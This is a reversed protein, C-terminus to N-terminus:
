FLRKVNYAPETITRCREIINIYKNYKGAPSHAEANQKLLKEKYDTLVKNAEDIKKNTSLYLAEAQKLLKDIEAEAEARIRDLDEFLEKSDEKYAESTALPKEAAEKKRNQFDILFQLETLRKQTEKFREFNGNSTNEDLEKYLEQKKENLKLLEGNIRQREQENEETKTRIKNKLEELKSGNKYNEKM